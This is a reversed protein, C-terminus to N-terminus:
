SNNQEIVMMILDDTDLAKDAKVKQLDIEFEQDLCENVKETTEDDPRLAKTRTTM